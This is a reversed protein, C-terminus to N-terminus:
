VSYHTSMITVQYIQAVLQDYGSSPDEFLNPPEMKRVELMEHPSLEQKLAPGPTPGSYGQGHSLLYPQKIDAKRVLPPM